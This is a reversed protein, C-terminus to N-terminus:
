SWMSFSYTFHFRRNISPQLICWTTHNNRPHIHIVEIYFEGLEILSIYAIKTLGSNSM